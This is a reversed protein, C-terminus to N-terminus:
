LTAEDNHLEIKIIDDTENKAAEFPKSQSIVDPGGVNPADGTYHLSPITIVLKYPNSQGSDIETGSVEFTMVLNVVETGNIWANYATLDEFESEMTGAITWFENALPEHKENGFGRRDTNLANTGNVEASNVVGVATSNITLSGDLFTFSELGSSYSATALTESTTETKFNMSATMTAIENMAASITWSTIKGGLYSFPRVTADTSPRGVQTTLYLGRLGNTDPTFTHLYHNPAGVDDPQTTAVSGLAHKFWLGMGKNVMEMTVDGEAGTVFHRIRSTRRFRGRGLASPTLRQVQPSISESTFEFFTDPAVYTGYTSEEAIGIQADLGTGTAM